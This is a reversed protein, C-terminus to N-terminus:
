LDDEDYIMPVLFRRARYKAHLEPRLKKLAEVDVREVRKIYAPGLEPNEDRFDRERFTGNAKWTVAVEDDLVGIEADALLSKLENSAQERREAWMREETASLRYRALAGRAADDLQVTKAPEANRFLRKVLDTCHRTGDLSPPTHTEVRRWFDQEEEVIQEAISEDYEVRRIIFDEGGDVLCAIYAYKWGAVVMGHHVQLLAYAPVEGDAWLERMRGHTTKCELFSVPVHPGWPSDDELVRDLNVIQWPREPHRITGPNPGVKLHPQYNHVRLGFEVAVVDELVNGWYMRENAPEDPLQGTKDLWLEWVNSWPNLGLTTGCDSGGLGTRRIGLFEERTVYPMPPLIVKAGSPFEVNM